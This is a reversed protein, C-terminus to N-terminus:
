DHLGEVNDIGVLVTTKQYCKCSIRVWILGSLGDPRIQVWVTQCETPKGYINLFFLNVLSLCIGECVTFVWSFHRMLHSKILTQVSPKSFCFFFLSICEDRHYNVFTSRNGRFSLISRGMSITDVDRILLIQM